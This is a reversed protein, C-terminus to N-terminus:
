NSESTHNAKSKGLVAQINRLEAESIDGELRMEEFNAKFDDSSTDAINTSPRLRAVVMFGLYGAALLVAVALVVQVVPQSVFDFLILTELDFDPRLPEAAQSRM